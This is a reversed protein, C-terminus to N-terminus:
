RITEKFKVFGDIQNLLEQAEKRVLDNKSDQVIKKLADQAQQTSEPYINGAIKVVALEAERSLAEDQLYDMAIQLAGLSKVEALGSLVRKKESADPALNMAKRYMEISEEAPRESELRLLYVSGRLALIRHIKSESNQAAEMLDPLPEPTPWESLARIASSKVDVNNDKLATILVPLSNSDGIKGLVGLLSCRSQIDKASELAALVVESRRNTDEIKRALSAITTQAENIESSSQLNLLLEVLTPLHEPGAIAKLARFSEIRVKHDPDKATKM